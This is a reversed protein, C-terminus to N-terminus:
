ITLGRRSSKDKKKKPNNGQTGSSLPSCLGLFNEFERQFYGQIGQRMVKLFCEEDLIPEYSLSPINQFLGDMSHHGIVGLDENINSGQAPGALSLGRNLFCKKFSRTGGSIGAELL